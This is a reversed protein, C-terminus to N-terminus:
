LPRNAGKTPAIESTRAVLIAGAITKLDNIIYIGDDTELSTTTNTDSRIYKGNHSASRSRELPERVYGLILPAEDGARLGEAEGPYGRRGERAHCAVADELGDSPPHVAEHTGRDWVVRLESGLPEAKRGRHGDPLPSWGLSGDGVAGGRGEVVDPVEGGVDILERKRLRPLRVAGIDAEVVACKGRRVRDVEPANQDSARSSDRGVEEGVLLLRLGDGSDHVIRELAHVVIRAGDHVRNGRKGRAEAELLAISCADEAPEELEGVSGVCSVEHTFGSLV